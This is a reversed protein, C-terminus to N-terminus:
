HLYYLVSWSICSLITTILTAYEEFEDSTAEARTYKDSLATIGKIYFEKLVLYTSFLALFLMVSAIIDISQDTM